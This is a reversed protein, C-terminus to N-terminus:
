LRMNTGALWFIIFVSKLFDWIQGRKSLDSRIRTWRQCGQRGLSAWSYSNTTQFLNGGIDSTNGQTTIMQFLSAIYQINEWKARKMVGEDSVISIPTPIIIHLSDPSFKNIRPNECTPTIASRPLQLHLLWNDISSLTPQLSIRVRTAGSCKLLLYRLVWFM